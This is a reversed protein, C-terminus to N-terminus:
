VKLEKMENKNVGVLIESNMPLSFEYKYINYCLEPIKAISESLIKACDEVEEDPSDAVLSDHVTCILVTRELEERIRRAAEIRALKVLDAGFGQVPYNKIKTIPWKIRGQDTVFPDFPYYRGSPVSLMRDAMAQQIITNHWAAVGKYKAYYADIVKQWYKENTSVDIFDPDTAYGYATAGYILKFKFRKAVVRSPLNFATQNNQHFDQGELVEQKLIKDNSLDAVVVM